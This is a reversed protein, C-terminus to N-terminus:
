PERLRCKCLKAGLFDSLKECSFPLIVEYITRAHEVKALEDNKQVTDINWIAVGVSIICRIVVGCSRLM